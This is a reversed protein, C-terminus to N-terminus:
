TKHFEAQNRVNASVKPTVQNTIYKILSNFSRNQINIKCPGNFVMVTGQGSFLSSKIGGVTGIDYQVDGDCSLFHGNEISFTSGAKIDITEIGGYASIWAIGYTSSDKPVSLESLFPSESVFLGRLRMRTDLVINDTCVIVGNSAVLKTEGPNIKLEIIDGTLLPSFCIKNGKPSVGTYSTLFFSDTTLFARKLATFLGRTQTSVRINNDMWTMMGANAFVSHGEKLNMVISANSPKHYIRYEPIHFSKNSFKKLHKTMILNRRDKLNEPDNKNNINNINNIDLDSIKIRKTTKKKTLPM